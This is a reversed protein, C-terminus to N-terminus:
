CFAAIVVTMASALGVLASSRAASFEVTAKEVEVKVTADVEAQNYVKLASFKTCYEEDLARTGGRTTGPEVTPICTRWNSPATFDIAFIARDTHIGNLLTTDHQGVIIMNSAGASLDLKDTGITDFTAEFASYCEDEVVQANALNDTTLPTSWSSFSSSYEDIKYEDVVLEGDMGKNAYIVNAGNMGNHKGGENMVGLSLWGLPGFMTMKLEVKGDKLNWAMYLNRGLMRTHSYTKAQENMIDVVDCTGWFKQALDYPAMTPPKTVFATSNTCKPSYGGHGDQARYIQDFVDTCQAGNTYGLATCASPNIEETFNMCRHWCFVQQGEVCADEELHRAYTNGSCGLSLVKQDPTESLSEEIVLERLRGFSLGHEPHVANSPPLFMRGYWVRTEEANPALVLTHPTARLTKHNAPLRPNVIQELGDGVMFVLMDDSFQVAAETGDQMQVIFKGAMTNTPQGSAKDVMMAPTFAIFLGQDTHTDVTAKEAPESALHYSHFHELHDGKVLDRVNEWSDEEGYAADLLPKKAFDGFTSSVGHAFAVSAEHVMSRFAKNAIGFDGCEEGSVEFDEAGNAHTTVSALSRRVTGDAFTSAKGHETQACKFSELLAAQRLEAYHPIGTIAVLGNTSLADTLLQPADSQIFSDADKIDEFPISVPTFAAASAVALSFAAKKM